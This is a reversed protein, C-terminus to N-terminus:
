MPSAPPPVAPGAIGSATGGFTGSTASSPILAGAAAGSFNIDVSNVMGTGSNINAGWKGNSNNNWNNVVFDAALNNFAATPTSTLGLGVTDGIQPLITGSYSGTVNDTVWARPTTGVAGSYGYFAVQNLLVNITRDDVGNNAGILASGGLDGVGVNIIPINMNSLATPDSQLLALYQYTEIENWAVTLGWIGSTPDFLGDLESVAIGTVADDWNVWSEVSTGIIEPKGTEENISWAGPADAASFANGLISRGLVEGDDITSYGFPITWYDSSNVAEGM